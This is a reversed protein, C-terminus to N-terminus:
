KQKKKPSKPLDHEVFSKGLHPIKIDNMDSTDIYGYRSGSTDWMSQQFKDPPKKGVNRYCTYIHSLNIPSVKAIEQLYYTAVANFQINSTPLKQDYFEEFSITGNGGKLNLNKDITYSEKSSKRKRKSEKLEPKVKTEISTETQTSASATKGMFSNILLDYVKPQIAEPFKSLIEAIENLESKIETYEPM